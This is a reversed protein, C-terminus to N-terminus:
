HPGDTAARRRKRGDLANAVLIVAGIGLLWYVTESAPGAVAEPLRLTDPDGPSWIVPIADGAQPLRDRDSADESTLTRDVGDPTKLAIVLYTHEPGYRYGSKTEYRGTYSGTLEIGNARTERDDLWTWGAGLIFVIGVGYRLLDSTSLRM